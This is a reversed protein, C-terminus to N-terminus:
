GGAIMPVLYVQAGDPVPTRAYLPRAVIRGNVRVAACDPGDPVEGLLERVTIGERWPVQIDDGVRIM